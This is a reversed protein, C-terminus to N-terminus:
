QIESENKLRAVLDDIEPCSHYFFVKQNEQITYFADFSLALFELDSKEVELYEKIQEDKMVGNEIDNKLNIFQTKLEDIEDQYLKQNNEAAGLTKRVGKCENMKTGLSLSITDPMYLEKIVAENEIIHDVMYTLSDYEIKGNKDELESLVTLCSDITEIEASYKSAPDCSVFLFTLIGIGIFALTKM